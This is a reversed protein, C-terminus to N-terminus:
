RSPARPKTPPPDLARDALATDMYETLDKLKGEEFRCIYCYTNDYRGGRKTAVKGRCEVVVLDGEAIFRLATNTYTGAFQEFLPGFLTGRVAKKGEWRGSWQSTGPIEWIFDEAMLDLFARSDGRSLGAFANQLAAKNASQTM